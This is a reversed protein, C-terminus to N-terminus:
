TALAYKEEFCMKNEQIKLKQEPNGNIASAHYFTKAAKCVLFPTFKQQLNLRLCVSVQTTDMINM